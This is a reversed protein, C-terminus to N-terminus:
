HAVLLRTTWNEGMPNRAQLFYLGDPWQSVTIAIPEQHGAASQWRGILRGQLGFAAIETRGAWPLQLYAETGAPNPWIRGTEPMGVQRSGTLFIEVVNSFVPKGPWIVGVIRYESLGGAPDNDTFTFTNGDVQGITVWGGGPLRRQILFFRYDLGGVSTWGLIARDPDFDVIELIISDAPPEGCPGNTWSLVGSWNMAACGNIYTMNDCGCVLDLEPPCEFAWDILSSDLCPPDPCDFFLTDCITLTSSGYCNLGGADRREVRMCLQYSTEDLFTFSISNNDVFGGIGTGTKLNRLNWFVRDCDGWRDYIATLFGTECSADVTFGGNVDAEYEDFPTCCRDCFPLELCRTFTCCDLASSDALLRSGTLDFCLFDLGEAAPRLTLSFNGISTGPAWPGPLNIFEEVILDQGAPERLRLRHITYDTLNILGFDYTYGGDDLCNLSEDRPALCQHCSLSLTDSCRTEVGVLWNVAMEVPLGTQPADVCFDFLAQAGAPLGGTHQWRLRRGPALTQYLWGSGIPFQVASFTAGPTLLGVEIATVLGNAPDYDYALSYCCSLSDAESLYASTGAECPTFFYGSTDDGGWKQLICVLGVVLPLVSYPGALKRDKKPYTNM